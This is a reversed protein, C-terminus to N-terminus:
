TQGVLVTEPAFVQRENRLNCVEKSPSQAFAAGVVSLWLLSGVLPMALRLLM